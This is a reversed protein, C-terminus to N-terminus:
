QSEDSIMKEVRKSLRKMDLYKESKPRLRLCRQYNLLLEIRPVAARSLVTHTGIEELYAIEDSTSWTSLPSNIDM